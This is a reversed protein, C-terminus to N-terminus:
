LQRALKVHNREVTAIAEFSDAQAVEINESWPLIRRRSVGANEGFETHLHQAPFLGRNKPIAFGATIEGVNVVRNRGIQQGARSRRRFTGPANKVAGGTPPGRQVFCEISQFFQSSVLTSDLVTWLATPVDFM